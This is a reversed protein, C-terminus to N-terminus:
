QKIREITAPDIVGAKVADAITELAAVERAQLEDRVRRAEDERRQVTQRRMREGRRRADSNLFLDAFLDM